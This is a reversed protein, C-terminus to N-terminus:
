LKYCTSRQFDRISRVYLRNRQNLDTYCSSSGNKVINSNLKLNQPLQPVLLFQSSSLFWLMMLLNPKGLVTFCVTSILELRAVNNGVFICCNPCACSVHSGSLLGSILAWNWWYEVRLKQAVLSVGTVKLGSVYACFFQSLLKRIFFSRTSCQHFQGLIM